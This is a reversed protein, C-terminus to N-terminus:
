DHEQQVDSDSIQFSCGRGILFEVYEKQTIIHYLLRDLHKEIETPKEVERHGFFSVTYINM